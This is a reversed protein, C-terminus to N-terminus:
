TITNCIMFNLSDKGNKMPDQETAVAVCDGCCYCVNICSINM